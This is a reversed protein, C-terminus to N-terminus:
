HESWQFLCNKCEYTQIDVDCGDSQTGSVSNIETVRNSECNKCEM